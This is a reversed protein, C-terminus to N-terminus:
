QTRKVQPQPTRLVVLKIKKVVKPEPAESSFLLRGGSDPFQEPTLPIPQAELHDIPLQSEFVLISLLEGAYEADPPHSPKAEITLSRDSPDPFSVVLGPTVKNHGAGTSLTPFALYPERLSGNRAMERDVVYLYGDTPSTILFRIKEGERANVQFKVKETSNTGDRALDVELEKPALSHSRFWLVSGAAITAGLLVIGLRLWWSPKGVATEEAVVASRPEFDEFYKGGAPWNKVLHVLETAYFGKKVAVVVGIIGRLDEDYVPSGSMGYANNVDNADATFYLAAPITGEVKPGVKRPADVLPRALITMGAIPAIQDTNAPIGFAIVNRKEWKLNRERRQWGADLYLFKEKIPENLPTLVRLVAIDYNKQWQRDQESCLAQVFEITKGQFTANLPITPDELVSVYLNHFATLAFESSIFFGTGYCDDGEPIDLRFILPEIRALIDGLDKVSV